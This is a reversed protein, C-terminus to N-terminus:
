WTNATTTQGLGSLRRILTLRQARCRLRLSGKVTVLM